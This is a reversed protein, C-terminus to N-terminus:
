TFSFQEQLKSALWNKQNKKLKMVLGELTVLRNENIAWARLAEHAMKQQKNPYKRRIEDIKQDSLGFRRVLSIWSNGLQSSLFELASEINAPIEPEFPDVVPATERTQFGTNQRDRSTEFPQQQIRTQYENILELIQQKTKPDECHHDIMAYLAFVNDEHIELNQLLLTCLDTLTHAQELRRLGVKGRFDQKMSNLEGDRDTHFHSMDFLQCVDSVLTFLEPAFM